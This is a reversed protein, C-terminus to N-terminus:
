GQGKLKLKLKKTTPAAAVNPASVTVKLTLSQKPTLEKLRSTLQSTFKLKFKTFTGPTVTKAAAKLKAKKGKGLAVQGNVAVSAPIDSTVLITALKKKASASTSLKVVPCAAQSLASQPCKDQTEDGYGDGDGDPEIVAVAPVRIGAAAGEEYPPNSNPPPNGAILGIGDAASETQCYLTGIETISGEFSIQGSGFLGLRDGVQIPIRAPIVNSGSGVMGGAEGVVLATKAGPNLRLVKLTQPIIPPITIGEGANLNLKWSTVVGAAPASMPLPSSPSTVGFLTAQIGGSTSRNGICNDGFETAASASSAGIVSVVLAAGVVALGFRKMM